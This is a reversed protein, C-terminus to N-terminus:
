FAFVDSQQCLDRYDLSHDKWYDHIFTHTPSYPLCFMLSNISEFQPAPFVRSLGKSLLSILGTLGLPFWGQSSMLLVSASASAGISQGGSVFLQNMPFSGSAQFSQFCFSFHTASSSTTLYYWQNLLRSNSCVWPSLSPYPFGSTSCNMSDCVTLGSKAVSCCYISKNVDTLCM